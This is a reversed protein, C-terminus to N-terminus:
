FKNFRREIKEFAPPHAGSKPFVKVFAEQSPNRMRVWKIFQESFVAHMYLTALRNPGCAYAGYVGSEELHRLLGHENGQFSFWPLKRLDKLLRETVLGMPAAHQDRIGVFLQAAFLRSLEERQEEGYQAHTM